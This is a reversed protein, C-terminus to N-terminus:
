GFAIVPNPSARSVDSNTGSRLPLVLLILSLDGVLRRVFLLVFWPRRQQFLFARGTELISSPTAKSMLAGGTTIQAYM